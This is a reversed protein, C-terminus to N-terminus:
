ATLVAFPYRTADNTNMRNIPNPLAFGLRMVARLAVMDQQALNYVINGAADQIVAQDLVKYTIDQRMAYVLQKWDGSVMLSSAVNISGDTPFYIPTGDLEYQTSDQMSRKFIPQGNSDRVNRLKGRMSMHAINGTVMFGDAEVLMFLGDAGAATEGLIAEYLDAYAAASISHSAAAAGAVLGASGLNTTWTAPINTGYLVAANIAASLAIEIEPRVQAWIDYDTDDLVAEPVPIIVALEEADIYKNAWSLESTQKLGTDGAVFYATAFSGLVPMRRQARSMNPLKRALQLIPNAEALNTLIEDSVDEPILAAADSRSTISNFPM